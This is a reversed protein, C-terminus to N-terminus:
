TGLKEGTDPYLTHSEETRICCYPTYTHICTCMLNHLFTIAVKSLCEEQSVSLLATCQMYGICLACPAASVMAEPECGAFRLNEACYNTLFWVNSVLVHVNSCVRGCAPDRPFVAVEIVSFGTSSRGSDQGM